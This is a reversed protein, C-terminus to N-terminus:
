GQMIDVDIDWGDKTIWIISDGKGKVKLRREGM